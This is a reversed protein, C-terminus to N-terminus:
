HFESVAKVTITSDIEGEDNRPGRSELCVPYTKGEKTTAQVWHGYAYKETLIIRGSLVAQSKFEGLPEGTRVTTWGENVKALAEFPKHWTFVALAEDKGVRIGLQEMAKLAGPPCPEATVPPPRVEATPGSCAMTFCAGLVAAAKKVPGLAKPQRQQQTKVSAEHPPATSGLEVPAAM